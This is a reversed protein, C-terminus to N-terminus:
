TSSRVVRRPRWLVEYGYWTFAQGANQNRVGVELFEGVGSLDLRKVIQARAGLPDTGLTWDVGLTKSGGLVSVSYTQGGTAGFDFKTDVTVNYNGDEKLYIFAHRPSKQIGPQNLASLHRAEGDIANTSVKRNLVRVHGDYGGAYMELLGNSSNKVPWMSAISQSPWTSWANTHLDFVLMLDNQANADNDVAFYLRNWQSDYAAVCNNLNQLSITFGSLPEWYSSIKDSSFSAKLDGFLLVTRLNLVGNDAMFWVDNVAFINGKTSIAGKSGTTPVVNTIAYTSPSTGQLRYPRSGKLLILENISPVLDILDSGDNPNIQVSGANGATTYDEESNLASWTLTSKNTNDLFLVRNGHVAM